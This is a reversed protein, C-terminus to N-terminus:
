SRRFREERFPDGYMHYGLEEWYGARDDAVFEFGRIWKSSKWAYLHPVVTRLPGGHEPTLPEPEHTDALLVDDRMLDELPTNTTYGGDAHQIVFKVDPSPQARELLTRFSVGEWVNDFKSWTTVCHFDAEVRVRPLQKFEDWGLKFPHEVLGSITLDWTSPNFDPIRGVHLVPWKVTLSQGPPLRGEDRRQQELKKRDTNFVM